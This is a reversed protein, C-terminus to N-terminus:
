QTAGDFRRAPHRADAPQLRRLLRALAADDVAAMDGHSPINIIRAFIARATPCDQELPPYYKGVDFDFGAFAQREMPEAALVPVSGLIASRPAQLLLPVDLERCLGEIRARQAAYARGWTPLRELRELIAACALDSIKGNCAFPKLLDPGGIGFNIAARALPVDDRDVIMCGGEGLGWPKTHHFSIAESPHGPLTRDLGFLAAASDIMIAKGRAACFDTFRRADPLCAFLNTVVLGDWSGEPLAAVAALDIMGHEDCDVVAADAFAGTRQSFFTYASVAWRLPKGHTVAHLAALGQLAVTASACMVVAREAPLAMLHELVRELAISVPGFNAWRRAEESLSAIERVRQWDIHKDEVYRIRAKPRMSPASIDSRRAPVGIMEAIEPLVSGPVMWRALTTDHKM